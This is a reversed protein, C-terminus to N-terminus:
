EDCFMELKRDYQKIEISGPDVRWIIGGLM